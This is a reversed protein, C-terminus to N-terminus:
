VVKLYRCLVEYPHDGLSEKVVRRLGEQFSKSFQAESIMLVFLAVQEDTLKVGDFQECTLSIIAGYLAHDRLDKGYMVQGSFDAHRSDVAM